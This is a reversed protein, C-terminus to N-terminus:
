SNLLRRFSKLISFGITVNNQDHIKSITRGNEKIVTPYFNDGNVIGFLINTNANADDIIHQTITTNKNWCGFFFFSIPKDFTDVSYILGPSYRFLEKINRKSPVDTM